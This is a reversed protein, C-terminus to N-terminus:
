VLEPFYRSTKRFYLVSVVALCLVILLPVFMLVPSAAIMWITETTDSVVFYRADQLIQAMPNLLLVQAATESYGRVMSLPYIIPTAFYGAQMIVEWIHGIDRFKVFVASLLLALALSLIFCEVILPIIMLAAPTFRVGNILALVAFVVLNIGLNILASASSNIVLIHKPLNIKRILDGNNVIAHLGEGTTESFFNWLIIGLLLSVEFHPIGAGFRLFHVFVLYMIAFLLLPKLASWVMGLVSAEYRLKFDVKVLRKILIISLKYRQLLNKM